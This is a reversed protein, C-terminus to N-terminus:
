YRVFYKGTARVKVAAPSGATLYVNRGAGTRNTWMRHARYGPYAEYYSIYKNNSSRYLRFDVRKDGSTDLRVLFRYGNPVYYNRSPCPATGFRPILCSFSYTRNLHSQPAYTTESSTRTEALSVQAVMVVALLALPAATGVTMLRLAM